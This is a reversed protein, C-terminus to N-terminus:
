RESLDELTISSYRGKSLFTKVQPVDHAHVQSAQRLPMQTKVNENMQQRTPM